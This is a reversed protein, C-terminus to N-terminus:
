SGIVTAYRLPVGVIFIVCGIVCFNEIEVIDWFCVDAM